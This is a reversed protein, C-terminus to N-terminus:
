DNIVLSVRVEMSKQKSGDVPTYFVNALVESYDAFRAVGVINLVNASFKSKLGFRRLVSKSVTLNGTGIVDSDVSITAEDLFKLCGNVKM